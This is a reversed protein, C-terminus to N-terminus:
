KEISVNFIGKGEFRLYTTQKNKTETATIIEGKENSIQIKNKINQFVLQNAGKAEVIYSIKNDITKIEKLILTSSILITNTIGFTNGSVLIKPNKNNMMNMPLQLSHSLLVGDITVANTKSQADFTFDIQMGQYDYKEIKNLYKTGRVALGYPLRRVGLNSLAATFPGISFTIPRVDHFPNGDKVDVIEPMAYPMVLYKGARISQPILYQLAAMLSDEPYLSPDMNRLVSCYGAFFYGEPKTRLNKYLAWRANELQVDYNPFFPPLSMAWVYDTQDMGYPVSTVMKGTSTLLKGYSPLVDNGFLIGIKQELKKAKLMYNDAKEGITVSSLMAYCSYNLLNIYLDYARVISDKEYIAPWKQSPSGNANDWGEDRSNKLPSECYYYRGFLGQKEDFCYKELWSMSSELTELNKGSIHETNGTQTWETFACWIAYFTGDEEWKSISGGLLQGYFKQNPYQKSFNPNALLVPNSKQVPGAWGSYSLHNVNMGNDRYWLLYYIYQIASRMLGKKDQVSLAYRKNIDILKQLEPNNRVGIKGTELDINIKAENQSILTELPLSAIEKTFNMVQESVLEGSIILTQNASLHARTYVSRGKEVELQHQFQGKGTGISAVFTFNRERNTHSIGFSTPTAETLVSSNESKFDVYEEKEFWLVVSPKEYHSLLHMVQGSKFYLKSHFADYDCHDFDDLKINPITIKDFVNTHDDRNSFNRDKYDISKGSLPNIWLQLLQRDLNYEIRLGAPSHLFVFSETNKSGWQSVTTTYPNDEEISKFTEKELSTELKKQECSIIHAAIWFTLLYNIKKM